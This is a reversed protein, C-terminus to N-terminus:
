RRQGAFDRRGLQHDDLLRRGSGGRRPRHLHRDRQHGPSGRRRQGHGAASPSAKVVTNGNFNTVYLNGGADLALADPGNLLGRSVYTSVSGGPTVKDIAYDGNDSVYLNGSADIVIDPGFPVGSAFVSFPGGGPPVKDM